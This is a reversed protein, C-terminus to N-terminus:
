SWCPACEIKMAQTIHGCLALRHGPSVWPYNEVSSPSIVHLPSFRGGTKNGDVLSSSPESNMEKTIKSEMVQISSNSNHDNVYKTRLLSPTEEKKHSLLSNQVEM